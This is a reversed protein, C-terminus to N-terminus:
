GGFFRRRLIEEEFRSFDFYERLVLSEFAHRVHPARDLLIRNCRIVRAQLPLPATNLTVVDLRDRGLADILKELLSLKVEACDTGAKLYVAIDIDSTPGATGRALSGFLYAFVVSPDSELATRSREAIEAVDAQTEVSDPM